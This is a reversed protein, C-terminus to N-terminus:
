WRWYSVEQIQLHFTSKLYSAQFLVLLYFNWSRCFNAVIIAYVPMSHAFERWPTTALTPMAIQVSSGLSKEIYLLERGSITPHLCPKEFSLWLWCVYWVMGMCGLILFLHLNNHSPYVKNLAAHVSIRWCIPSKKCSIVIILYRRWISPYRIITNEFAKVHYRICQRGFSYIKWTFDSSCFLESVM